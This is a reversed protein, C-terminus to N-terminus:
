GRGSTLKEILSSIGPMEPSSDRKLLGTEVRSFLAELVLNREDGNIAGEQLLALYVM